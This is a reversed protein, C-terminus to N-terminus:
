NGGETADMAQVLGAVVLLLCQTQTNSGGRETSSGQRM